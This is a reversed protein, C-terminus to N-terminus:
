ATALKILHELFDSLKIKAADLEYNFVGGENLFPITNLELTYIKGTQDAIMDVRALHRAKLVKFAKLAIESANRQINEPVRAPAVIDTAGDYKAKYDFFSSRPTIQAIPLAEPNGATKEWVGVSLETGEIFKEVLVEHSYDQALKFGVRFETESACISVGISSGQNVPKVVVPYSLKLQDASTLIEYEPTDIGANKFLVKSISKDLSIASGISTTGVYPIGSADLLSQIVGDESGSGHGAIIVVQFYRKVEMLPIDAVDQFEKPNLIVNELEPIQHFKGTALDLIAVQYGLGELANAIHSTTKLSAEREESKGLTILVRQKNSDIM